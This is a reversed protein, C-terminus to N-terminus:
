LLAVLHEKIGERTEQDPAASLAREWTEVAKHRFGAQQYLIALNKLASFHLPKLGVATELAHIADFIDDKRGCLLGLHYHLAFALPDIALGRRIADVAEDLRGDHYAKVGLDLQAQAEASMDDDRENPESRRGELAARTLSVLEAVKFPKEVYAKVGYAEKLDEAFRWGRYKASVMIIPIEGYRESGNLRRCIDFGHVGPLMADLIILDPLLEAVKALAEDGRAAEAVDVEADKLVRSLLRRIDDEDDVVLVLPKDRARSPSRDDHEAPYPADSLPMTPPVTERVVADDMRLSAPLPEMAVATPVMRADVGDLTSNRATELSLASRLEAVDHERTQRLHADPGDRGPLDSVRKGAYVEAGREKLRYGEEIAAKIADDLAVNPFVKRGTVFEIEDIVQSSTPDSMALTLHEGTVEIPFVVHQLAVERPFLDLNTLPVVVRELDIGPVGHQESLARLLAETEVATEAAITSALRHGPAGKQVDLVRALEDQSVARQKLLIRGLKQKADGEDM